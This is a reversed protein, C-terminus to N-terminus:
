RRGQLSNPFLLLRLLRVLRWLGGLMLVGGLIVLAAILMVVGLGVMASLLLQIGSILENIAKSVLVVLDVQEPLRQLLVVVGVGGALLLLSLVVQRLVM